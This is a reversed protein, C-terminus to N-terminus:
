KTKVLRFNGTGSETTFRSFYVGTKWESASINLETAAVINDSFYIQRGTMDFIEFRLINEEGPFELSFQDSFPNPFVTCSLNGSMPEDIASPDNECMKVMWYDGYGWAQQSKYGGTDAVTFNVVVFCNDGYPVAWALRM